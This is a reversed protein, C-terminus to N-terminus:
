GQDTDVRLIRLRAQDCLHHIAEVATPYHYIGGVGAVCEAATDPLFIGQFANALDATQVVIM